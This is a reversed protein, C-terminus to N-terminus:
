KQIHQATILSWQSRGMKKWTGKGVRQLTTFGYCAKQARYCCPLKKVHKFCRPTNSKGIVLIPLIDGYTNATALGTLRIKSNKGRTCIKDKLHLIKKPLALCFLGFEEANHVETKSYNSLIIQLTTAMWPNTIKRTAVKGEWLSFIFIKPLKERFLYNQCHM